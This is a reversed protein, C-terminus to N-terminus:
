SCVDGDDLKVLMLLGLTMMVVGFDDNGVGVDGACNGFDGVVYYGIGVGGGALMVCMMMM